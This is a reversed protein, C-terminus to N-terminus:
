RRSDKYVRTRSCTWVLRLFPAAPELGPGGHGPHSRGGNEPPVPWLSAPEGAPPGEPPTLGQGGGLGTQTKAPSRGM